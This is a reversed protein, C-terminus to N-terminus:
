NLRDDLDKRTRLTDFADLSDRAKEVARDLRKSAYHALLSTAGLAGAAIFCLNPIIDDGTAIYYIGRSVSVVAM